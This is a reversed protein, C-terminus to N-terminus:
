DVPGTPAKKGGSLAAIAKRPGDWFAQKILFFPLGVAAYVPWGLVLGLDKGCVVSAEQERAIEGKRRADQVLSAPLCLLAGALFGTQYVPASFIRAPLTVFPGQGEYPQSPMEPQWSEGRAAPAINLLGALLLLAPARVCYRLGICKSIAPPVAAESPEVGRPPNM